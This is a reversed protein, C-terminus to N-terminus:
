KFFFSWCIKMFFLNPKIKILGWSPSFIPAVALANFFKPRLCKDIVFGLSPQGFILALAVDTSANAQMWYDDAQTWTVQRRRM